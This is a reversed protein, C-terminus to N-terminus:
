ERSQFCGRCIVVGDIAYNNCGLDNNKGRAPAILAFCQCLGSTLQFGDVTVDVYENGAGLDRLM